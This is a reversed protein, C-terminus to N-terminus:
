SSKGSRAIPKVRELLEWHDLCLLQVRRNLEPQAAAWNRRCNKRYIMAM